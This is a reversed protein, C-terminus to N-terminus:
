AAVGVIIAAGLVLAAAIAVLWGRVHVRGSGLVRTGAVAVVVTVVLGGAWWSVDVIDGIDRGVWLTALFLGAAAAEAAWLVVRGEPGPYSLWVATAGLGGLAAAGCAAALAAPEVLLSPGLVAHLGRLDALDLTAWRLAIVGSAGALVAFAGIGFLYSAGPAVLGRGLTILALGGVAGLVPGDVAGVLYGLAVVTGAVRAATSARETM